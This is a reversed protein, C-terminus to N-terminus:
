AAHRHPPRVARVVVTEQRNGTSPKRADPRQFNRTRHEGWALVAGFMVFAAVVLILFLVDTVPMNVEMQKMTM